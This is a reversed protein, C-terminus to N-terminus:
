DDSRSTLAQLVKTYQETNTVTQGNVATLIDGGLVWPEGEITVSLQGAQLGIKEAPSGDDVDMILLGSLLPLAMLNRLEETVFKGKVDLWPRIVRGSAQLATVISKVTNIPIVFAINEAGMLIVTNIGTLVGAALLGTLLTVIGDRDKDAIGFTPQM